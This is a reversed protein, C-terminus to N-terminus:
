KSEIIQKSEKDIVIVGVDLFPETAHAPIEFDIVIDYFNHFHIEYSGPSLGLIQFSGSQDTFFLVDQSNTNKEDRKRVVGAVCAIPSYKSQDKLYFMGEVILTKKVDIQILAGSRFKPIFIYFNEDISYEFPLNTTGVIITNKSFSPISSLIAPLFKWTKSAYYDKGQPNIELEINSSNSTKQILAFSDYIPRGIGFVGDAFAISTGVMYGFHGSIKKGNDTATLTTYNSAQGELRDSQYSISGLFNDHKPSYQFGASGSASSSGRFKKSYSSTSFLSQNYTDYSINQSFNSKVPNWSLSFVAGKELNYFYNVSSLYGSIGLSVGKWLSTSLGTTVGWKSGEKRILSYNGQLSTSINKFFTKNVSCSATFIVNNNFNIFDQYTNFERFPAYKKGLYAFNLNWGTNKINGQALFRCNIQPMYGFLWSMGLNLVSKVYKGSWSTECGFQSQNIGFQLYTGLTVTTGLGYSLYGSYFLQNFLYDSQKINQLVGISSSFDFNGKKLLGPDYYYNLDESTEKGTIDTIKLIFKNAGAVLPINTLSHNGAPLQYTEFLHDNIFLEVKSPQPLYFEYQDFLSKRKTFVNKKFGIGLISTSPQLGISPPAFEGTFMRLDYKEFDTVLLLNNLIPTINKKYPPNIVGGFTWNAHQISFNSAVKFPQPNLQFNPVYTYSTGNGFRINLYGSWNAPAISVSGKEDVNKSLNLENLKILHPDIQIDISQQLENFQISIVGPIEFAIFFEGQSSFWTEILFQEEEKLIKTLEKIISQTPFLVNSGDQSILIYSHSFPTYNIYIPVEIPMVFKKQEETLGGSTPLIGQNDNPYLYGNLLVFVFVISLYKQM